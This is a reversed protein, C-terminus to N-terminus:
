HSAKAVLRRWAEALQRLAPELDALAKPGLGEVAAGRLVLEVGPAVALHLAPDLASTMPSAGANGAVTAAAAPPTSWFSAAPGSSRAISEDPLVTPTGEAQDRALWAWSEEPIAAVRALTEDAAGTLARQVEVLPKGQAQLRKIAALQLVHRRGYLARRGQMEAPPDILGLTTYYRITRREPVPRVRGSTQGDYGAADLARQVATALGDITWRDGM